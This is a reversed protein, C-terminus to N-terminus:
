VMDSVTVLFLFFFLEFVVELVLVVLVLLFGLASTGHM